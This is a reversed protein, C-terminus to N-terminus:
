VYPHGREGTHPIPENSDRVLFVHIQTPNLIASFAAGGVGRVIDIWIGGYRRM